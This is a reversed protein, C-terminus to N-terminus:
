LKGFMDIINKAVNPVSMMERKIVDQTILEGNEGDMELLLYKAKDFCVQKQKECIEIVKNEDLKKM